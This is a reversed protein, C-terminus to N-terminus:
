MQVYRLAHTPPHINITLGPVHTPREATNTQICIYIYTYVHKYIYIHMCIHTSIYTHKYIHTYIHTQREAGNTQANTRTPSYTHSDNVRFYRPHLTHSLM